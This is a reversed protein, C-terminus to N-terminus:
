IVVYNYVLNTYCSYFFNGNYSVNVMTLRGEDIGHKFLAM